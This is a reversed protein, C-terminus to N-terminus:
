NAGTSKSGKLQLASNFDRVEFRVNIDRAVVTSVMEISNAETSSEPEDYPVL